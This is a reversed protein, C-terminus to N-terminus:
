NPSPIAQDTQVFCVVTDMRYFARLVVDTKPMEQTVQKEGQIPNDSAEQM